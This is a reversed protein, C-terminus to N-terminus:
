LFRRDLFHTRPSKRPAVGSTWTSSTPKWPAQCFVSLGARTEVAECSLRWVACQRDAGGQHFPLQDPMNNDGWCYVGIAKEELTGESHDEAQRQKREKTHMDGTQLSDTWLRDSLPEELVPRRQHGPSRALHGWLGAPSPSVLAPVRGSGNATALTGVSVLLNYAHESCFLLYTM